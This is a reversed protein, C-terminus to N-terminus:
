SVTIGGFITNYSTSNDVKRVFGIRIYRTNTDLEYNVYSSAYSRKIFIKNEDYEAVRLDRIASSAIDSLNITITGQKEIYEKAVANNESSVLQGGDNIYGELYSTINTVTINCTAIQQGCTVTIICSGNSIPTIVGNSVTAIKENDSTWEIAETTNYPTVTFKLTQPNETNIELSTNSLTLGTCAVTDKSLKYNEGNVSILLDNLDGDNITSASTLILKIYKTGDKLTQTSTVSNATSSGTGLYNYNEGYCRIAHMIKNNNVDSNITVSTTDIPIYNTRAKTTSVEEMGTSFNINGLEYYLSATGTPNETIPTDQFVTDMYAFRKEAWDLVYSKAEKKYKSAYSTDSYKATYNADIWETTVDGWVANISDEVQAKTFLTARLENYKTVIENKFNAWLKDFLRSSPCGFSGLEVNYASTGVSYNTGFANDMDWFTAYWKGRDPFYLMNFNKGKSDIMACTYMIVFYNILYEKDFYNELNAIFEEDSAESVWQIANYLVDPHNSTKDWVRDEWYYDIEAHADAFNKGENSGSNLNGYVFAGSNDGRNSGNNLGIQYCLDAQQVVSGNEGLIEGNLNYVKDDQKLNWFYIGVFSDNIYLRIPFGDVTFRAGERPLPTLYQYSKTIYHMMMNNMFNTCDSFNCKLHFNNTSHWDRFQKKDKQTRAEDKFLKIKYNKKPFALSGSGQWALTAYNNFNINNVEDKFSCTIDKYNDASIGTLDGNLSVKPLKEILDSLSYGLKNLLKLFLDNQSLDANSGSGNNVIDKIQSGAEQLAGEVNTSTFYNGTDTISIDSANNSGGTSTNNKLTEIEDHATYIGNEINNMSEKTILDGNAWIKKNYSM